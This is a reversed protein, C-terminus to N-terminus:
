QVTLFYRSGSVVQMQVNTIKQVLYTGHIGIYPAIKKTSWNAISIVDPTLDTNFFGGQECRVTVFLFGILFLFGRVKLM